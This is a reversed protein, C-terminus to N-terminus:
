VVGLAGFARVVSVDVNVVWSSEFADRGGNAVVAAELKERVFTKINLQHVPDASILARRRADAPSEPGDPKLTSPDTHVLCDHDAEDVLDIIVDTWVTMLEQLRALIVPHQTDLIATLALCSLKKRVPDFTNDLNSFWETLLWNLTSEIPEHPSGAQLASLFLSPSALAVRALLSIYRIETMSDICSSTKSSRKPGTVQHAFHAGQLSRLITPLFDTSLLHGTLDIIAPTGGIMNASRFLLEILEAILSAAQPKIDSLLTAFPALLTPAESLFHQPILYIYAETIEIAKRLTESTTEYMPFLHPALSIIEQSAPSPTQSLITAWLDMAEEMLYVRIESTKEVSSEILPIIMSHYKRSDEKMSAVLASLIALISQKLLYIDGAQVWLPPLLSIIQDAFPSIQWVNAEHSQTSVSPIVHHEMREIIVSLTNILALKTEGLEVEGILQLLSDLIAPAYPVFSEAHFEFPDVVHKLQRGATVRVVQDNLGDHKNLLHQFIQYVLPRNLGEKVPLWQGLLIAIRRRLINYGPQQIQVESVLTSTLFTGFDLKSDLVPAALGIAAYISDKLLIDSNHIAAVTLWLIRVLFEFMSAVNYFVDLLPQVLSEKYNLILDLFLKESCSRISFEWVDGEGEERREWEGPEEEWDRLDRPRFVFFRTVLAEMMECAFSETLLDDKILKVSNERDLQVEKRSYKFMHSPSFAMKICARLLLLGKLSIKELASMEEDDADGDNGIRASPTATQSGFTKGFRVIAKWYVGALTVSDPFLAFSTPHIKVMDLHMKAIQIIHKEILHRVSLNLNSSELVLGLMWGFQIGVERWFEMAEIHSIPNEYGTIILRRLIRLSFLSQEISDLAGGEDDGGSELFSRWVAVNKTYINGLVNLINTAESSFMERDLRFRKKWIEKITQLLILLARSFQLSTQPKSSTLRLATVIDKFVESRVYILM